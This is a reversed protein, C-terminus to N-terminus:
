LYVIPAPSFAPADPPLPYGLGSDLERRSCARRESAPAAPPQHERWGLLAMANGLGWGWHLLCPPGEERIPVFVNKFSCPPWPDCIVRKLPPGRHTSLSKQARHAASMVICLLHCHTPAARPTQCRHCRSTRGEPPCLSPPLSAESGIALINVTVEKTQCGSAWKEM